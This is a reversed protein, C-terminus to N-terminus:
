QKNNHTPLYGFKEKFCKTFYSPSSFGVKYSIENINDNGFEILEKAKELRVNRIFENVSVGTLTKIKRYLQSRSLFVESALVEVSLETESINENIYNLAKQIFENDLTTTKAKANKTIGNYFKNFMIQRSTILQALSSRLIDMDFPKSLYLDAGSDIGELKDEVLAKASLMLLPIHSTKLNLKINKCLDLGNMVPMIVDTLILDPLKQLAIELGIQGNEALLVKYDKKLEDRLYNRLEVDDEVILITHARLQEEEDNTQEKVERKISPIFNEKKERIFEEQLVDNEDFFEKGIPFLLKFITGVGLESEVEIKGKHLEIFGRVVELGIGTSGYYAKNLNNVQYFRDFIKKIDKKDLGAGTDEINIEFFPYNADPGILPFNDLEDFVKIKVTIKGNDPTVKFANSIVNFIIKEFMKPSLWDKFEEKNTEFRLNIGRSSAEEEFFSVIEKTFSVVEIQQVQLTMKDFQLQNFDMLENILRSLRDSSKQITQLKSLVGDPLDLNKNKLIDALPNIILTLPTRFEHSINTFFQLKKSNLKETQITKQREFQILQQGKFRNQFYQNVFYVAALVILLYFM